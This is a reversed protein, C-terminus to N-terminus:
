CLKRGRTLRNGLNFSVSYIVEFVGVHMESNAGHKKCVRYESGIVFIDCVNDMLISKKYTVTTVTYNVTKDEIFICNKHKLVPRQLKKKKAM